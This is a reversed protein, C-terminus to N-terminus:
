PSFGKKATVQITVTGQYPLMTFAFNGNPAITMTSIVTLVTGVPCRTVNTPPPSGNPYPNTAPVCTLFLQVTGSGDQNVIYNGTITYYAESSNTPYNPYSVNQDIEQGSIINGKGDSKFTGIVTELPGPGTGPTNYLGASDEFGYEGSISADSFTNPPISVGTPPSTSGMGGGCGFLFLLAIALMSIAKM